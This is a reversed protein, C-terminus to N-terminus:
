ALRRPTRWLLRGIARLGPRGGTATRPSGCEEGAHGPARWTIVTPRAGPGDDWRLVTGHDGAGPYVGVGIRGDELQFLTIRGQTVTGATTFQVTATVKCYPQGEDGSVAAFPTVAIQQGAHQGAATLDDQHTM